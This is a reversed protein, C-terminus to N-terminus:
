SRSARRSISPARRKTTRRSSTASPATGPCRVARYGCGDLVYGVKHSNVIPRPSSPNEADIRDYVWRPTADYFFVGEWGVLRHLPDQAVKVEAYTMREGALWDRSHVLWGIYALHYRINAQAARIVNMDPAGGGQDEHRLLDAGYVIRGYQGLYRHAGGLPM